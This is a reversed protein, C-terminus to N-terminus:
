VRQITSFVKVNGFLKVNGNDVIIMDNAHIAYVSKEKEQIVKAISKNQVDSNTYHVELYFDNILPIGKYYNFEPYDKDPSLHYENLQIVAGASYGMIIGNHKSITDILDFEVLRDYMRDPLGGLFYLLNASLIKEKASEKTDTFYNLFEINNKPIGYEEFSKIIDNYFISGNKGYLKEWDNLNKVRNDRFSFAIVLVKFDPAIYNKLEDHWFESSQGLYKDLLINVM